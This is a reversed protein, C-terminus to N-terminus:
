HKARIYVFTVHSENHIVITVDSETQSGYFTYTFISYLTNNIFARGFSRKFVYVIENLPIVQMLQISFVEFTQGNNVTKWLHGSGTAAYFTHPLQSPVAFDVFRGSQRTPGISRYKLNKLISEDVRQGIAEFPSIFILGLVLLAALLQTKRQFNHM